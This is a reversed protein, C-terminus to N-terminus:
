FHTLHYQVTSTHCPALVAAALRLRVLRRGNPIWLAASPGFYLSAVQHTAFKDMENVNIICYMENM